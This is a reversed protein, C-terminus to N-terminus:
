VLMVGCSSLLMMIGTRWATLWSVSSAVGSSGCEPVVFRSSFVGTAVGSWSRVVCSSSFVGAAVGSWSWMRVVCSSSFVSSAVLDCGDAIIVACALRMFDESDATARDGGLRVSGDSDSRM